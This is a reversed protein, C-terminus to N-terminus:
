RGWIKELDRRIFILLIIPPVMSMVGAAAVAGYNATLPSMLNAMYVSFTQSGSFSLPNSLDYPTYTFAPPILSGGLQDSSYVSAVGIGGKSLPLAIRTFVRFGNMGGAQAAEDISKPFKSYYNYMWTIIPLTMIPYTIVLAWWTNIANFFRIM